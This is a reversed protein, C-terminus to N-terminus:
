QMARYGGGALAIGIVPTRPPHTLNHSTMMTNIATLYQQRDQLFQQEGKSLSQLLTLM